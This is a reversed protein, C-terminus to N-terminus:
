DEWYDSQSLLMGYLMLGCLGLVFGLPPRLAGLHFGIDAWFVFWAADAKTM